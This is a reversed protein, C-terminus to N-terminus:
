DADTWEAGNVTRMILRPGFAWLAGKAAHLHGVKKNEGLDVSVLTDNKLQFLTEGDSIFLQSNFSEMAVFSDQTQNHKIEAWVDGTRRLLTGQIGCAYALEFSIVKVCNLMVNVPSHSLTWKEERRRWIAGDFGVATLDNENLGHIGNFRAPGTIEENFPIWTGRPLRRYIQNAMGVAFLSDGIASLDRLPGLKRPGEIQEIQEKEGYFISVGGHDYIVLLGEHKRPKRVVAFGIPAGPIEFIEPEKGKRWEMLLNVPQKEEDQDEDIIPIGSTWAHDPGLSIGNLFNITFSGM